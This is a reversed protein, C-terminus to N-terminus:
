NGEAFAGLLGCVGPDGLLGLWKALDGGGRADAIDEAVGSYRWGYVVGHAMNEGVVGMCWRAGGLHGLEGEKGASCEGHSGNEGGEEQEEGAKCRRCGFDGALGTDDVGVGHRDAFLADAKVADVSWFAALGAGGFTAGARAAGRANSPHADSRGRRM